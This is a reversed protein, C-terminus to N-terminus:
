KKIIRGSGNIESEVIPDGRYLVDGSGEILVDLLDTVWVESDGSGLVDIFARETLLDFAELDGSGDVEHNLLDVNGELFINGSGEISIHVAEGEIGVDIDGSGNIELNIEDELFTNDGLIKGSGNIALETIHPTTIYVNFEHIRSVCRDIEIEWIDRYVDRNIHDILNEDIEVLIRRTNGQTIFVDASGNLHVKEFEPVYIERTIVDGDGKLCDFDDDDVIICAPIQLISMLLLLLYISNKM